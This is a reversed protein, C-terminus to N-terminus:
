HSIAHVSELGGRLILHGSGDSTATFNYTRGDRVDLTLQKPTKWKANPFPLVSITHRGPSLVREYTHGWAINEVPTGDISLQVYVNKGVDPARHIIVRAGAQVSAFAVVNVLLCGVILFLTNRGIFTKM